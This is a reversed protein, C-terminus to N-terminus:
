INIIVRFNNTGLRQFHVDTLKRYPTSLKFKITNVDYEISFIATKIISTQSEIQFLSELNSKLPLVAKIAEKCILM